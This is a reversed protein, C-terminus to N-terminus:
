GCKRCSGTSIEYYFGIICECVGNPQRYSNTPCPPIKECLETEPNLM